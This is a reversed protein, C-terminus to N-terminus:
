TSIKIKKGGLPSTWCKMLGRCGLQPSEMWKRELYNLATKREKLKDQYSFINHKCKEKYCIFLYFIVKKGEKFLLIRSLSKSDWSLAARCKREPHKAKLPNNGGVGANMLWLDTTAHSIPDGEVEMMGQQGPVAQWINYSTGQLTVASLLLVRLTHQHTVAMGVPPECCSSELCLSPLVMLKSCGM